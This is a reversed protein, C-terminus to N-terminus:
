QFVSGLCRSFPYSTFVGWPIGSSYDLLYKWIKRKWSQLTKAKALVLHVNHLPHPSSDAQPDCLIVGPQPAACGSNPLTVWFTVKVPCSQLLPFIGFLFAFSIAPLSPAPPWASADRDRWGPSAPVPEACAPFGLLTEKAAIGSVSPLLLPLSGPLTKPLRASHIKARFSTGCPVVCLWFPM